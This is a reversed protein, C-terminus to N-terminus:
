EASGCVLERRSAFTDPDFLSFSNLLVRFSLGGGRSAVGVGIDAIFSAHRLVVLGIVHKSLANRNRAATGGGEEEFVGVTQSVTRGGSASHPYLPPAKLLIVFRTPTGSSVFAKTRFTKSFTTSAFAASSRV